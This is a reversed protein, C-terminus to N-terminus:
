DVSLDEALLARISECSAFSRQRGELNEVIIKMEGDLTSGVPAYAQFLGIQIDQGILMGQRFQDGLVPLNLTCEISADIMEFLYVSVHSSSAPILNELADVLRAFRFGQLTRSSFSRPLSFTGVRVTVEEGGTSSHDDHM